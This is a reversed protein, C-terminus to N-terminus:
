ELLVFYGGEQANRFLFIKENELSLSLKDM